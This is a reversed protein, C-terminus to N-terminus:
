RRTAAARRRDAIGRVPPSRPQAQPEREVVEARRQRVQERGDGAVEELDLLERRDLEDIEVQRGREGLAVGARREADVPM